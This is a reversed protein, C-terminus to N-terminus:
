TVMGGESFLHHMEVTAAGWATTEPDTGYTTGRQIRHSSNYNLGLMKVISLEEGGGRGAWGAAVVVASVAVTM